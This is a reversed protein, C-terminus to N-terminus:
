KRNKNIMEAFRSQFSVLSATMINISKNLDDGNTYILVKHDSVQDIQQCFGEDHCWEDALGCLYLLNDESIGPPAAIITGASLDREWLEVLALNNESLRVLETIAPIDPRVPDRQTSIVFLPKLTGAELEAKVAGLNSTYGIVEGRQTALSRATNNEFGTIIKADLELLDVITLGALTSYGSTTGAAIKLDKGTQLASISQYPGNSSVFFFTQERDVKLIYSFEEIEYVAAPDNLVKNTIFKVSATTGLTLGNPSAKYLYNMGELGGAERRNEVIVKAQTDAGLRNAFIRSVLDVLSGADSSVTLTITKGKYFESPSLANEKASCSSVALSLFATIVMFSIIIMKRM